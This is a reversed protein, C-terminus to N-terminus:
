FAAPIAGGTSLTLRTTAQGNAAMASLRDSGSVFATRRAAWSLRSRLMRRQMAADSRYEGRHEAVLRVARERFEPSYPKSTKKQTQDM